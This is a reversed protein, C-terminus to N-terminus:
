AAGRNKLGAIAAELNAIRELSAGIEREAAVEALRVTELLRDIEEDYRAASERLSRVQELLRPWRLAASENVEHGRPSPDLAEALEAKCASFSTPSARGDVAGDPMSALLFADALEDLEDPTSASSLIAFEKLKALNALTALLKGGRLLLARRREAPTPNTPDPNEAMRM